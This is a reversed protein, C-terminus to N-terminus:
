VLFSTASRTSSSSLHGASHRTRWVVVSRCCFGARPTPARRQQTRRRGSRRGGSFMSGARPQAARLSPLGTRPAGIWHGCCPHPHSCCHGPLPCKPHPIHFTSAQTHLCSPLCSVHRHHEHPLETQQERRSAVPLCPKGTRCTTSCPQDVHLLTLLIPHSPTRWSPSAQRFM